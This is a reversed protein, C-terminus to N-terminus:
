PGARWLRVAGDHSCSALTSGDPSFALGNVQGKHGDLTLLEQGTIPDWLRITRTKGAVALSRGDPSYALCLPFDHEALVSQLRDGSTIDWVSVMGREDATALSSGDPAFAVAAYNAVGTVTRLLSGSRADWLRVTFDNGASALLSGDPSFAVRRVTDTHDSLVRFCRRTAVDWLRITRDSGASALTKGEPDFTVTRVSDTHGDLEAHRHENTPDWLRVAGPKGLHASALIGGRPAFALAAVTGDGAKWGRVPHGTDADWLKITQAETTDDSGTALVSGDPSFAASWAEDTHGAPQDPEQATAYNWRIAAWDNRLILSRRDSGFLLEAGGPLGPYSAVKRWPDLQWIQTPQPSGLKSDNLALFHGDPSSAYAVSRRPGAVAPPIMRITGTRLDCIYCRGSVLLDMLYRGDPCFRIALFADEPPLEYRARERGAKVDWLVTRAGVGVALVRGDPSSAAFQDRDIAGTWGLGMAEELDHLRFGPGPGELAAIPGDGARPRRAEETFRSWRLRPHSPDNRVDWSGLRARGGETWSVEWLNEGRADWAVQDVDRDSFGELRALLQGSHTEWLLTEGRLPPPIDQHGVSALRRGDPSFALHSVLLRHGALTMRVRGTEPDRLRITGDDDGTALTGGDPSLAISSVREAQRDSLVVLDRRARRMLYHWAFGPDGPDEAADSRERDAEIAALIDQAREVQRAELAQQAQRLQFAQLHRRALRAHADARVIERELQRDHDQIMADRLIIGVILVLALLGGLVLAAAHMPRRRLWKAARLRASIPRARIPEGALFRELDERLAGASAYRRDPSKELCKLCITELDRPLGPRLTRPPVPDLTLVQGLTELYSEGLFPPRGSLVEYLTAGLAYVDAAAGIERRKGAAQEPAMYPPSGFPVGSRTEEDTASEEIIRALGFDTIRLIPVDPNAAGGGAQLLINSPKLDRHLVGRDHAHQVAGALDALLRAAARPPVPGTRERLWASLTPGECYASVIYAFPGVDGAEFVPVIHPHDLGAAARGERLFRRRAEPTLLVEARPVKLAVDRGLLPDRALYVVGFGGRGIERIVEFRGLAAPTAVSDSPDTASSEDPELRRILDVLGTLGPIPPCTIDEDAPLGPEVGDARAGAGAADAALLAALLHEDIPTIEDRTM